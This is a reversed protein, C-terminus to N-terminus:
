KPGGKSDGICTTVPIKQAVLRCAAIKWGGAGRTDRIHTTKEVRLTVCMVRINPLATARWWSKLSQHTDFTAVCGGLKLSDAVEQVSGLGTQPVHGYAIAIPSRGASCPPSGNRLRVGILIPNQM